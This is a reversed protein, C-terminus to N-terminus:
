VVRCRQADRPACMRWAIEASGAVRRRVELSRRRLRQGTRWKKQADTVTIEITNSKVVVGSNNPDEQTVFLTYRGPRDLAYAESLDFSIETSHGPPLPVWGISGGVGFGTDDKYDSYDNTDDATPKKGALKWAAKSMKMRRGTADYLHAKFGCLLADGSVIRLTIVQACTNTEVVPIRLHAGVPVSSQAASIHASFPATQEQALLCSGPAGSLQALAVAFISTIIHRTAM